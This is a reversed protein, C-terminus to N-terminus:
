WRVMDVPGFSAISCADNPNVTLKKEGTKKMQWCIITLQSIADVEVEVIEVVWVIGEPM